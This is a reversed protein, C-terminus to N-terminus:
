PDTVKAASRHNGSLTEPADHPFGTVWLAEPHDYDISYNAAIRVLGTVAFSDGPAFHEPTEQIIKM